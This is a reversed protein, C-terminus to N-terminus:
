PRQWILLIWRVEMKLVVPHDAGNEKSLLSSPITKGNSKMHLFVLKQSQFDLYQAYTPSEWFKRKTLAQLVADAEISEWQIWKCYSTAALILKNRKRYEFLINLIPFFFNDTVKHPTASPQMKCWFNSPIYINSDAQILDQWKLQTHRYKYHYHWWFTLLSKDYSFTNIQVVTWQLVLTCFWCGCCGGFDKHIM